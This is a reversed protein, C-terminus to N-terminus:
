GVPQAFFGMIHQRDIATRDILLASEKLIHFM